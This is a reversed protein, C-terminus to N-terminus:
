LAIPKNLKLCREIFKRKEKYPPNSIIIDWEESEYTFFDKNEDIHSYVVKFGNEQLVKIFSSWEKDFPCWIIKDKLHQIHPLLIEVGYEYTYNENDELSQYYQTYGNLKNM